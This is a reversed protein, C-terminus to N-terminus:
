APNQCSDPAPNDPLNYYKVPAQRCEWCVIIRQFRSLCCLYRTCVCCYLYFHPAAKLRERIKKKIENDERM